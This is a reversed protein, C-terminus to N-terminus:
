IENRRLYQNLEERNYFGKYAEKQDKDIYVDIGGFPSYDASDRCEAKVRDYLEPRVVIGVLIKGQLPKILEYAKKIDELTVKNKQM